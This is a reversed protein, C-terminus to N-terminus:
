YVKKITDLFVQKPEAGSVAYTRNFVFFPVGTVGLDAAETIDALVNDTYRNGALIENVETAHLGSAVATAALVTNDGLNKGLTFYSAFLQEILTQGLGKGAAHHILRHADFTNFTIATDFNFELGATKATNVIRQQMEIIEEVPRGYKLTLGETLNYPKAPDQRFDPELQFSKFTTTIAEPHGFEAVAAEYNRKGIYCFPCVVDSWIDVTIHPSTSSNM